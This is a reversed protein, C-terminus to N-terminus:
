LQNQSIARDRLQPKNSGDHRNAGPLGHLRAQSEGKGMREKLGREEHHDAGDVGAAARAIDCLQGTEAAPLGEKVADGNDGGQRHRANGREEAEHGFLGHQFRGHVFFQENAHRAIHNQHGIHCTGDQGHGICQAKQPTGKSGFVERIIFVANRRSYGPHVLDGHAQPQGWGHEGREGDRQANRRLRERPGDILVEIRNKPYAVVGAQGEPVPPRHGQADGGDDDHGSDDHM